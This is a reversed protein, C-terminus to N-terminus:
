QGHSELSKYIAQIRIKIKGKLYVYNSYTFTSTGNHVVGRQLRQIVPFGM